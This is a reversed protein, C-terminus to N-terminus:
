FHQRSYSVCFFWCQRPQSLQHEYKLPDQFTGLLDSWDQVFSQEEDRSMIKAVLEEVQTTEDQELQERINYVAVMELLLKCKERPMLHDLLRPWQSRRASLCKILQRRCIVLQLERYAEMTEKQVKELKTEGTL